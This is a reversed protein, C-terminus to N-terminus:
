IIVEGRLSVCHGVPFQAQEWAGSVIYFALTDWVNVDQTRHHVVLDVLLEVAIRLSDTIRRQLLVTIHEHCVNPKQHMKPVTVVQVATCM